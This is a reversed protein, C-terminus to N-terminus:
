KSVSSLLDDVVLMVEQLDIVKGTVTVDQASLPIKDSGEGIVEEQISPGIVYIRLRNGKEDFLFYPSKKREKEPLNALYFLQGRVKVTKELYPKPNSLLQSITIPKPTLKSSITQPLFNTRLFFFLVVSTLIVAVIILIVQFITLKRKPLVKKDEM